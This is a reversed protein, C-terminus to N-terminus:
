APHEMKKSTAWWVYACLLVYFIVNNMLLYFKHTGNVLTIGRYTFQEYISCAFEAVFFQTAPSKRNLLFAAGIFQFCAAAIFAAQYSLTQLGLNHARAIAYHGNFSAPILGLMTLWILLSGLAALGFFLSIFIALAPSKLSNLVRRM